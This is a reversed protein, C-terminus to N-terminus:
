RSAPTPAFQRSELPEFLIAQPDQRRIREIRKPRNGDPGFWRAPASPEALHMVIRTDADIAELVPAFSDYTFFWSPAFFVDIDAKGLDYPRIDDLGVETDGVHFFRLGGLDILFGLNQIEPKRGRGHHLNLIEVRIGAHEVVARQGEDPWFGQVRSALQDFGAIRRIRNVAQRTSVFRAEPNKRLHQAVAEANFHDDHYHTALVLDVEAYPGTAAELQRRPAPPVVPYGEIGDGFLADILVRTEGKALLFGENGLYTVEVQNPRPAEAGLVTPVAALLLCIAIHKASRYAAM